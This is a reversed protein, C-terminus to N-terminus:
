NLFILKCFFHIWLWSDILERQLGFEIIQKENNKSKMQTYNKGKSKKEINFDVQYNITIYYHYCSFM